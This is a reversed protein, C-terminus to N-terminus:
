FVYANLMVRSIELFNSKIKDLCALHGELKILPGNTLYTKSITETTYYGM